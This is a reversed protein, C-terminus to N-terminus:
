GGDLLWNVSTEQFIKGKSTRCQWSMEGETHKYRPKEGEQTGPNGVMKWVDSRNKIGGYDM